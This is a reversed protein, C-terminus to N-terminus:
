GRDEERLIQELEGAARMRDRAAEREDEVDGAAEARRDRAQANREEARVRLEAACEASAALATEDQADFTRSELRRTEVAHEGFTREFLEVSVRGDEAAGTRVFCGWEGRRAYEAAEELEAAFTSIASLERTAFTRARIVEDPVERPARLTRPQLRYRVLSVEVRGGGLDHEKVRYSERM